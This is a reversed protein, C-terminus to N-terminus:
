ANWESVRLVQCIKAYSFGKRMLYSYIKQMEKDSTEEPDFGKKRALNRITDLESEEEFADDLVNEAIEKDIGKGLLLCYIERRSKIRMKERVFSRAYNADNIYGFSKAYDVALKIVDDTYFNQRLKITIQQETRPMQELLHLIRKKARKIIIENRIQSYVEDTVESDMKIRFRSLEGKYLVFAFQEDLYVKYRNKTVEELMTVQM